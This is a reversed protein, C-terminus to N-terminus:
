RGTVGIGLIGHVPCPPDYESSAPCPCIAGAGATQPSPEGPTSPKASPAPAPSWTSSGTGRWARIETWYAGDEDHLEVLLDALVGEPQGRAAFIVARHATGDKDRWTARLEPASDYLRRRSVPDAPYHLPNSPDEPLKPQM